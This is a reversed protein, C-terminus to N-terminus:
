AVVMSYAKWEERCKSWGLRDLRNGFSGALEPPLFAVVDVIGEEKLAANCEYHLKRVAELRWAPTKWERNVVLYAEASRRFFCAMGIGKDDEVVRAAFFGASSLSAPFKYDLGSLAHLRKINDYDKETYERITM